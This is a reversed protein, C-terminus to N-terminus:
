TRIERASGTVVKLVGAPLGSRQALEALALASLPTASAPKIVMTCGTALAAGAKRTIMAAPFNWPTIAACVGVPAKIVVIRNDRQPAPITDGYIRKGEEAFWEIFSAAYAIEGLSEALPKGQEATMLRALDERHAMILAFWRHLLEAREAATRSRWDQFAREAAMVAHRTEARGMDPVSGLQAGTAPNTVNLTAGSDAGHWSGDIYGQQRFLDKDELALM